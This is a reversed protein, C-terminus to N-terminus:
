NIVVDQFKRQYESHLTTALEEIAMPKQAWLV